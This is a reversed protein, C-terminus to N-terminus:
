YESNHNIAASLQFCWLNRWAWSLPLVYLLCTEEFGAIFIGLHWYASSLLIYHKSSIFFIGVFKMPSKVSFFVKKAM